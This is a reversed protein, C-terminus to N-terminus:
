TLSRVSEREKFHHPIETHGKVKEGKILRILQRAATMGMESASYGITSLKPRTVSCMDIDDFGVISIDGPVEYGIDQLYNMAGIAMRDTACFIATPNEGTDIIKKVADMGDRVSLGSPIVWDHRITLGADNLAKQYGQFRKVGTETEQPLGRIMGIKRHGKQILYSVAEYSATFNDVHVSPISESVLEQGILVCPIGCDEIMDLHAPNYLFGIIIGDAQKEKFINMFNFDDDENIETIRLMIEYGYMKAITYVGDIMEDFVTNRIQSLIICLTNSKNKVLGRAFANPRFNTQEIVDLVRKRLEENVPKSNNIVRSVTSFSVGALKAIDKITTGM